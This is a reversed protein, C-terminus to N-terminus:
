QKPTIYDNGLLNKFRKEIEQIRIFYGKLTQSHEEDEEATCVDLMERETVIDSLLELFEKRDSIIQQIKPEDYKFRESLRVFNQKGCDFLTKELSLYDRLISTQLKNLIKEEQYSIFTFGEEKTEAKPKLSTAGPKRYISYLIIAIMGLVIIDSM